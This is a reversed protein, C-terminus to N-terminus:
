SRSFFEAFVPQLDAADEYYHIEGLPSGVIMPSPSTHNCLLVIRKGWEEAKGIEYGVGLSPVSLDAVLVESERLWDLDRENIYEPPHPEGDADLSGQGVHETLVEGYEQLQEIIREYVPVHQRGATISGAFYIKM